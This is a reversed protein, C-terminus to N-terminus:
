PRRLKRYDGERITIGQADLHELVAQAYKRSTNFLDRVEALAIKERQRIAEKIQAIMTEYDQKRFLVEASVACLEGSETLAVLVEEGVEAQCDKVSPPSFPNAEFKRMLAQVKAQEQGNFKIEHGAQALIASHDVILRDTILKSIVANFVRPALKLKSKLEERPLGRRLPYTKHYSEVIQMTQRQLQNWQGRTTILLDSTISPAGSELLYLSNTILLQTLALEANQAELRSRAVADKIPAIGLSTAGELL